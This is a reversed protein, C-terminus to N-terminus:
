QIINNCFSSLQPHMDKQCTRIHLTNRTKNAQLLRPIRTKMRCLSIKSMKLKRFSRKGNLTWRTAIKWIKLWSKTCRKNTAWSSLTMLIKMKKFRKRKGLSPTFSTNMRNMLWRVKSNSKSQNKFKMMSIRMFSTNWQYLTTISSKSKWLKKWYSISKMWRNREIAM